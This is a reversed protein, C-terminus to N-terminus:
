EGKRNRKLYYLALKTITSLNFRDVRRKIATGTTYKSHPKFLAVGNVLVWEGEEQSGWDTLLPLSDQQHTEEYKKVM